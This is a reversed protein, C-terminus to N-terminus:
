GNKKVSRPVWLHLKTAVAVLVLKLVQMKGNKVNHLRVIKALAVTRRWILRWSRVYGATNYIVLPTPLNAYRAGYRLGRIWLEKDQARLLSEDYLGVKEFFSRRIMVSPHVFMTKLFPLPALQEHTEPLRLPTSTANTDNRLLAGTGLVDVDPHEEMFKAQLELRDKLCIDDADIRAILDGKALRIGKNLSAALGINRLNTELRIREDECKFKNVIKISGDTSGDYIVILEWSKFTQEEISKLCQEICSVENFCSLIISVDVSRDSM